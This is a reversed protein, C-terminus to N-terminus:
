LTLALQLPKILKFLENEYIKRINGDYMYTKYIANSELEEIYGEWVIFNERILNEPINIPFQSFTEYQGKLEESFKGEITLISFDEFGFIASGIIKHYYNM